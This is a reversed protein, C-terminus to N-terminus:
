ITQKLRPSVCKRTNVGTASLGGSELSSKTKINRSTKVTYFGDGFLENCMAQAKARDGTKFFYYKQEASMVFFMGPEIFDYATYDQYSVIVVEIEKKKPETM